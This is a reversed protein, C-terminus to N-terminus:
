GEEINIKYGTGHNRRYWEIFEKDSINDMDYEKKLKKVESRKIKYM